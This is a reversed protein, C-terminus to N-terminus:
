FLKTGRSQIKYNRIYAPAKLHQPLRPDNIPAGIALRIPLEGAWVSSAYDAQDDIPPGRRIKASAEILPMRLVLNKKLEGENPHRVEAWRGPIVHESFLRLAKAKEMAGRVVYAKGFVVISRYNMSHHFASRALVLGDVLTVTVCVPIGDALARFMRSSVSGHIYLVDDARGYATPIVVPQGDCLFGVHCIFAEDLIQYIIKREYSARKSLRKLRTRKTPVFQTNM